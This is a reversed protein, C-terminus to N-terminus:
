ATQSTLKQSSKKPAAKAAKYITNLTKRDSAKLGDKLNGYKKEYSEQNLASRSLENQTPKKTSDNKLIGMLVHTQEKNDVVMTEINAEAWVSRYNSFYTSAKKCIALLNSGLLMCNKKGVSSFIDKQFSFQKGNMILHINIPKFDKLSPYAKQDDATTYIKPNQFIYPLDTQINYFQSFKLPNPYLKTKPASPIPTGLQIIADVKSFSSSQTAANVILGGRGASIIIVPITKSFDRRLQTVNKVFNEAETQLNVAGENKDVWEFVYSIPKIAAPLITQDFFSSPISLSECFLSIIKKITETSGTPNSSVFICFVPDIKQAQLDKLRQASTGQFFLQTNKYPAQSAILNIISIFSVLYLSSKM